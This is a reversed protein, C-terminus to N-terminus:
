PKQCLGTIAALGPSFATSINWATASPRILASQIMQVLGATEIGSASRTAAAILPQSKTTTESMIASVSVVRRAWTRRGAVPQPSFSPVTVLESRRILRWRGKRAGAPAARCSQCIM